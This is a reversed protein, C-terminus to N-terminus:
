GLVEFCATETARGRLTVAGLPRLSFSDGIRARTTDSIVIQDPKAVSGEIRSATNVVDGLVTFERRKSSGIDGTLAAGSNIAIRMQIPHDRATNIRAVEQRMAIATAVCRAAHDPQDFPAGFVALIADGIFKDLTGEHEFIIDAMRGFFSNLLEGVAVPTMPECLKTFGVIDCFMVTVDREQAIFSGDANAGAQLIRRTVAPSHYRSLRERRTTEDVLQQSLRAQEISVAAYNCLASFVELDDATFKKSLPNDCYLVGIVDSRNWLPACMFSRINMAHISNSADLRSDSLVDSALMAVRERMVTSLVTRSLSLNTPASGDRNRVVRGELPQDISERLMLFVREAPVAEFVLDGVRSLVQALPQVTVLTRGIETLLRLMRGGRRDRGTRRDGSARGVDTKRRDAKMRREAAPRNMAGTDLTGPKPTPVEADAKAGEGPAHAPSPASTPSAGWPQDVRRVITGPADLVAARESLFDQEAVNQEVTLILEGIEIADGARIERETTVPLGNVTTGYTSGADRVYARGNAIRFCAHRRSVGPANVVLGCTPARGVSTEGAPLTSSRPAGSETFRLTFM